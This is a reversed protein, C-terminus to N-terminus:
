REPALSRRQMRATLLFTLGSLTFAVMSGVLAIALPSAVHGRALDSVRGIILPAPANGLLATSLLFYAQLTTAHGRPGMEDIAAAIPGYYVCFLFSAVATLILFVGKSPIFLAVLALPVSLLFSVGIVLAHGGRRRRTVADGWFGGALVGGTGCVLAVGALFLGAMTPDIRRERLLLTPMWAILASGGFTGLVGGIVSVVYVRSSLYRRAPLSPLEGESPVRMKLSALVLLLGPAGAIFLAGRWSLVPALVGSTLLALVSGGATGLAVGVNYIGLARGRREPPADACLLANASPGFAGEGMGVLARTVLLFAYNPAIASGLTALSWVTVGGAIVARAGFRRTALGSIASSLAYVLLNGFGLAGLEADSLALDRGVLPFLGYMIQRDFYNIFSLATLVLLPSFSRKVRPGDATPAGVTAM